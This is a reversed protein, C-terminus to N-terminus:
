GRRRRQTDPPQGHGTAARWPRPTQTVWKESPNPPLSHVSDPVYDEISFELMGRSVYVADPIYGARYEDNDRVDLLVFDEQKDKQSKVEEITVEPITKQTEEIIQRYSKM